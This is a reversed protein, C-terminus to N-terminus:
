LHTVKSVDLFFGSTRFDSEKSHLFLPPNLHDPDAVFMTSSTKMGANISLNLKESFWTLTPSIPSKPALNPFFSIGVSTTPPHWSLTLAM